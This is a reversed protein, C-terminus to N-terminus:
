VNRDSLSLRPVKLNHNDMMPLKLGYQMATTAIWLGM